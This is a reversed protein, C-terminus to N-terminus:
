LIPMQHDKRDQKEGRFLFLSIVIKMKAVPVRTIRRRRVTGTRIGKVSIRIIRIVAVGIRIIRITITM